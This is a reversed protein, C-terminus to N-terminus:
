CGTDKPSSKKMTEAYKEMTNKLYNGGGVVAACLQGGGVVGREEEGGGAQSLRGGALGQSNSTSM